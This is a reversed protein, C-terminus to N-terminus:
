GGKSIINKVFVGAATKVGAKLGAVTASTERQLNTIVSSINNIRTSLEVVSESLGRVNSTIANVNNSTIKIESLVGQLEKLAPKLEEDTSSLFDVLRKITKKLQVVVPILLFIFVTASIGLIILIVREIAM